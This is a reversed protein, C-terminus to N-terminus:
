LYRLQVEIPQDDGDTLVPYTQVTVLDGLEVDGSGSVDIHASVSYRRRGSIQQLPVAIEFPLIGGPVLRVHEWRQEAIVIQPADARSIDEVRIRAIAAEEPLDTQPLVLFGRVPRSLSDTVFPREANM